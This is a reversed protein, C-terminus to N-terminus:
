NTQWSRLTLATAEAACGWSLMVGAGGHGYNYIVRTGDLQQEEVRVASRTPLLGVRHGIVQAGRIRPEVEACRDIISAAISPDATRDWVGPEATGGLVLTDGHPYFHLLDPSLGTDESFFETIGPNEVVVLQGRIPNLGPDPVLDRAGMGACVVVVPALAVVDALSGVERIEITAGASLLRQQLYGLYIPMDVIPATYRWGTSFGPPM